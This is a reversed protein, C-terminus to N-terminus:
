SPAPDPFLLPDPPGVPGDLHLRATRLLYGGVERRAWPRRRLDRRMEEVIELSRLSWELMAKDGREDALRVDEEFRRALREGVHQLTSTDVM